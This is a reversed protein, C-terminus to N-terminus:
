GVEGRQVKRLLAYVARGEPIDEFGTPNEMRELGRLPHLRARPETTFHIADPPGFVGHIETDPKIPYFSLRRGLANVAIFARQTSLAYVTRRRRYAEWVHQGVAFYLGILVIAIGVLSFLSPGAPANGLDATTLGLWAIGFVIFWLGLLVTPLNGRRIRIRGDPRGEWLITEGDELHPAWADGGAESM